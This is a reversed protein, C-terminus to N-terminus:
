VWIGSAHALQAPPGAALCLMHELLLEPQTNPKQCDHHPRSSELDMCGSLEFYTAAVNQWIMFCTM